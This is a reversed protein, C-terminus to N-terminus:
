AKLSDMLIELTREEAEWSYSSNNHRPPMDEWKKLKQWLAKVDDGEKWVFGLREKENFANWKEEPTFILAKDFAMYEYFKTPMKGKIYPKIAYLATGFLCNHILIRIDAYPVFKTGGLLCFRHSLGSNVVQERIQQIVETHPSVGAVVFNLPEIQNIQEWLDLSRFVGWDEALTGTYLMYRDFPIDLESKQASRIAMFKNRLFFRRKEPVELINEYVEEAYSVAEIKKVAWKEMRRVLKALTEGVRGPYHAAARLTQAYDEHVDYVLKVKDRWKLYLALPLLEPSHIVYADARISRIKRGHLFSFFLRRVSMRHFPKLPIIHIGDQFYAEKREDQACVSVQYGLKKQSRALKHFMRPHMSPNLVSIHCVHLSM